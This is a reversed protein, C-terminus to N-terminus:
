SHKCCYLCEAAESEYKSIFTPDLQKVMHFDSSALENEGSEDYLKGRLFYVYADEKLIGNILYSLIEVAESRKGLTAKCKALMQLADASEPELKLFKELERECEEFLELALYCEAKAFYAVSNMPDKAISNSFAEISTQYDGLNHYVEGLQMCFSATLTFSPLTQASLLTKLAEENQQNSLMTSTQKLRQLFIYILLIIHILSSVFM